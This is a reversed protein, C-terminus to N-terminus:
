VLRLVKTRVRGIIARATLFLAPFLGLNRYYIHLIEKFQRINLQASIGDMGYSGVPFEPYYFSLRNNNKCIKLMFDLDSSVKYKENFGDFLDYVTKSFLLSTACGDLFSRYGSTLLKNTYARPQHLRSSGKLQLPFVIVEYDSYKKSVLVNKMSVTDLQDDPNFNIIHSGQAKMCAINFANYLSKDRELNITLKVNSDWQDKLRQLTKLDTVATSTDKIYWELQDHDVDSIASALQNLESTNNNTFTIITIM